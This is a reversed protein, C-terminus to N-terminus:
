EVPKTISTSVDFFNPYSELLFRATINPSPDSICAYNNDGNIAAMPIGDNVIAPRLPQTKVNTKIIVCLYNPLNTEKDATVNIIALYKGDDRLSFSTSASFQAPSNVEIKGAIVGINVGSNSASNVEKGAQPPDSTEVSKGIGFVYYVILSGMLLVMLPAFGYDRLWPLLFGSKKEGKLTRDNETRPVIAAGPVYEEKHAMINELLINRQDVEYNFGEDSIDVSHQEKFLSLANQGFEEGLLREVRQSWVKYEAGWAAESKLGEMEQILGYLKQIREEEKQKLHNHVILSNNMRTALIIDIEVTTSFDVGSPGEM